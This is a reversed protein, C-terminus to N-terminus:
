VTGPSSVELIATSWAFGGGAGLLAVRRGATLAGTDRLHALGAAQDGAGLHGVTSGWGWTSDAADIGVARLVSVADPPTRSEAARHARIRGRQSRLGSSYRVLAGPGDISRRIEFGNARCHRRALLPSVHPGAGRHGAGADAQQKGSLSRLM